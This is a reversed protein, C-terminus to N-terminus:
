GLLGGTAGLHLSRPESLSGTDPKSGRDAPGLATLPAPRKCVGGVGARTLQRLTSPTSASPEGRHWDQRHRTGAATGVSGAASVPAPCRVPRPHLDLEM